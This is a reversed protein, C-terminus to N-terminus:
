DIYRRPVRVRMRTIEGGQEKYVTITRYGCGGNGCAVERVRDLHAAREQRAIENREQAEKIATCATMSLLLLLIFIRM